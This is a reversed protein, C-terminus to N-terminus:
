DMEALYPSRGNDIRWIQYLDDKPHSTQGNTRNAPKGQLGMQGPLRELPTRSPTLVGSTQRTGRQELGPLTRPHSATSVESAKYRLYDYNNSPHAPHRDVSEVPALYSRMAKIVGRLHIVEERADHLESQLEKIDTKVRERKAKQSEKDCMRKRELQRATRNRTKGTEQFALSPTM